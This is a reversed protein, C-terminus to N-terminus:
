IGRGGTRQAVPKRVTPLPSELDPGAKLIKFVYYWYSSGITIFIVLFLSLSWVINAAPIPSLSESTKLLNYVTWPQRGTETTVWGTEVALWGLPQVAVLVRLFPRSEYLSRRKWLVAAWIMILLFLFGIGAMVRFTWFIVLSNPRLERPFEKLGPVQGTASHTVLLSLAAPISIELYNREEKMDPIALLNLAAGGQTNTDWHAEIAALKAPQSAAVKRGLFDGLYVQLPALLAAALLAVSMSRRYFAEDRKRLLFFASIGAVAFFSTEFSAIVMHSLSVLFSDSFIVQRFGTVMFRGDVLHFGGPTQMWSNGAMIWFASLIAGGAVLCTSAFHLAPRVRKWGFLMIGLFGAELFFATMVEYYLLPSFVNATIRSFRSWNTGFEFEMVIGTVVGVGFNIAFVRTWFRCMRYYIEQGTVLWLTEVVVLYFGLGITLTPFLIHFMITVAFQLRSLFLPEIWEPNM